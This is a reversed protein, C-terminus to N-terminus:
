KSHSCRRTHQKAFAVFRSLAPIAFSVAICSPKLLGCSLILLSFLFFFLTVLRSKRTLQKAKSELYQKNPHLVLPFLLLLLLSCGLIVIPIPDPIHFFQVSLGASIGVAMTLFCRLHSNAHYGGGHTQCVYLTTIMYLSNWFQGLIIGIGVLGVTSIITYITIDFGYLYVDRQESSVIEKRILYDTLFTSLRKIM